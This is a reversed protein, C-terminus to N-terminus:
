TYEWYAPEGDAVWSDSLLLETATRNQNLRYRQAFRNVHKGQFVDAYEVMVIVRLNGSETRIEEVESKSLLPSERDLFGGTDFPKDPAIIERRSTKKKRVTYDPVSPLDGVIIKVVANEIMAPSKGFNRFVMMVAPVVQPEMSALFMEAKGLEDGLGHMTISELMLHPREAHMFAVTSSEAAKAAVTAANTAEANLQYARIVYIVGVFTVLVGLGTVIFMWKAWEAM